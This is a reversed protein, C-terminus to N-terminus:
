QVWNLLSRIILILAIVITALIILRSVYLGDLFRDRGELGRRLARALPEAVGKGLKRREIQLELKQVGPDYKKIDELSVPTILNREREEAQLKTLELNAKKLDVIDKPIGLLDRIWTTIPM